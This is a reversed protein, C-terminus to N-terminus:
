SVASEERPLGGVEPLHFCGDLLPQRLHVSLGGVRDLDDLGQRQRDTAIGATPPITTELGKGVIAVTRGLLQVVIPELHPQADRPTTHNGTIGQQGGPGVVDAQQPVQEFAKHTHNRGILANDIGVTLLQQGFPVADHHHRRRAFPHWRWVRRGQEAEACSQALVYFRHPRVQGLAKRDRANPDMVQPMELMAENAFHQGMGDAHKDVKM